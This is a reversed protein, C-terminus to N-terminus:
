HIKPIYQSWQVTDFASKPLKRLGVFDEVLIYMRFLCYAVCVFTWPFLVRLRIEMAPDKDASNNRISSAVGDMRAQIKGLGHWHSHRKPHKAKSQTTSQNTHLLWPTCTISRPMELLTCIVLVGITGVSSVQWLIRETSTPFHFNWGIVFIGGYIWVFVATFWEYKWTPEIWRDNPIRTAPFDANHRSFFPLHLKRLINLYHAWLLSLTWEKRTIYDLPTRFYTRSSDDGAARRIDDISAKSSLIIVNEIAAPKHRWVISAALMCPIFALTTLELTTIHIHQVARAVFNASFWLVQVMTVMRRHEAYQKEPKRTSLDAVMGPFAM